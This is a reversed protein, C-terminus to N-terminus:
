TTSANSLSLLKILSVLGVTGVAKQYATQISANSDDGRTLLAFPAVVLECTTVAVIVNL